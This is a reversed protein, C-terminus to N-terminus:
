PARRFPVALLNPVSACAAAGREEKLGLAITAHPARPQPVYSGFLKDWLTLNFSYNSNTEDPEVSHHVRHYDPTVIFLRALADVPAPLAIAAHHFTSVANLVIEFVLVALFHVGFLGVAAMKILMSVLYELPHFRVGSSADLDLDLHHVKHLRWFAPVEHFFRHQWYIVFDLWLFGLALKVPFAWSVQHLLGLRREEAWVSFEGAAMPLFFRVALSGLFMLGFNALWRAPRPAQPARRPLLYEAASALVLVSLFATLRLAGDNM